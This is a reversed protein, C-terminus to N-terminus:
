GIEVSTFYNLTSMTNLLKKVFAAGASGMDMELLLINAGEAKALASHKVGDKRDKTESALNLSEIFDTLEKGIAERNNAAEPKVIATITCDINLRTVVLEYSLNKLKFPLTAKPYMQRHYMAVDIGEIWFEIDTSDIDTDSTDYVRGSKAQWHILVFNWHHNNFISISLASVPGKEYVFRSDDKRITSICVHKNVKYGVTKEFLPSLQADAAAVFEESFNLNYDKQFMGIVIDYYRFLTMPPPTLVKKYLVANLGEIWFVTDDCDIDSDAIDYIRGSTSKWFFSVSEKIRGVPLWCNITSTEGKNYLFEGGYEWTIWISSTVKIGTEKEFYATLQKNACRIFEDSMVVKYYRNLVNTMGPNLLTIMLLRKYLMLTDAKLM